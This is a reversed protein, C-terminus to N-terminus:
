GEIANIAAIAGDRIKATMEDDAQEIAARTSVEFAYTRVCVRGLALSREAIAAAAEQWTAKMSEGIITMMSMPGEQGQQALVAREGLMLTLAVDGLLASRARRAAGAERIALLAAERPSQEAAPTQRTAVEGIALVEQQMNRLAHQLQDLAGLRREIEAIRPASDAPPPASPKADAGRLFLPLEEAGDARSAMETMRRELGAIRDQAERLAAGDDTQARIRGIADAVVREVIQVIDTSPTSGPANDNVATAERTTVGDGAAAVAMALFENLSVLVEKRPEKTSLMVRYADAPMSLGSM